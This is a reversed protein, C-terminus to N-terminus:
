IKVRISGEFYQFGYDSEQFKQSYLLGVVQVREKISVGANVSANYFNRDIPIIYTGGVLFLNMIQFNSSVNIYKAFKNDIYAISPDIQLKPIKIKKGALISLAQRSYADGPQHNSGEIEINQNFIRRYLIGM